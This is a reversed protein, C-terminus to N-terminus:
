RHPRVGSDADIASGSRKSQPIHGVDGVGLVQVSGDALIRVTTLSAHGISFQQWNKIDMGLAKTLLYRIVNAHAVLVQATQRGSSPRFYADYVRDFQEGCAKLETADMLATMQAPPLPPTCEILDPLTVLRAGKLQDVIAQGTTQSRLMPSAVVADIAFGSDGLRKAALKAQELGVPTM